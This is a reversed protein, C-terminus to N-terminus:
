QDIFNPMNDALLWKDFRQLFRLALWHYSENSNINGVAGNCRSTVIRGYEFAHKRHEGHSITYKKLITSLNQASSQDNRAYFSSQARFIKLGRYMKGAQCNKVFHRLIRQYTAHNRSLGDERFTVIFSCMNELLFKLGPQNAAM